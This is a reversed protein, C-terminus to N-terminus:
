ILFLVKNYDFNLLNIENKFLSVLRHPSGFIQATIADFIQRISIRRDPEMWFNERPIGRLDVGNIIEIDTTKKVHLEMTAVIDDITLDNNFWQEYDIRRNCVKKVLIQVTPEHPRLYADFM